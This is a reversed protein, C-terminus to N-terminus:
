VTVDCDEPLEARLRTRAVSSDTFKNGHLRLEELQSGWGSPPDGTLLNKELSLARLCSSACATSPVWGTLFNRQLYVESLKPLEFLGPLVPGTLENYSIDIHELEQPVCCFSTLNL